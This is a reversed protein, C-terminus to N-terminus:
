HGLYSLPDQAYSALADIILYILNLISLLVWVLLYSKAAITLAQRAGAYVPHKAEGTHPKEEQPRQNQRASYRQFWYVSTVILTLMLIVLQQMPLTKIIPLCSLYPCRYPLIFFSNPILMRGVLFPLIAIFLPLYRYVYSKSPWVIRRYLLAVIINHVLLLQFGFWYFAQTDRTSDIKRYDYDITGTLVTWVTLLIFLNAVGFLMATLLLKLYFKKYLYKEMHDAIHHTSGLRNLVVNEAVVDAQGSVAAEYAADEMHAGLEGLLRERYLSAPLASKLEDLYDSRKSM